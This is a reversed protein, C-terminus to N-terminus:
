SSVEKHSDPTTPTPAFRACGCRGCATTRETGWPEHDFGNHGCDCALDALLCTCHGQECLGTKGPHHRRTIPHGCRRCNHGRFDFAALSWQQARVAKKGARVQALRGQDFLTM